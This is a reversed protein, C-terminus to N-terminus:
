GEDLRQLTEVQAVRSVNQADEFFATFFLQLKSKRRAILGIAPWAIAQRLAPEASEIAGIRHKETQLFCSQM